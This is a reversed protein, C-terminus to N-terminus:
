KTPLLPFSEAGPRGTMQRLDDETGFADNGAPLRGYRLPTQDDLHHSVDALGPNRTADLVASFSTGGGFGNGRLAVLGLVVAVFCMGLGSGYAAFLTASHYEFVTTSTSYTCQTETTTSTNLNQAVLSLTVNQMLQEVGSPLDSVWTLGSSNYTVVLNTLMVDLTLPDIRNFSEQQRYFAGTLHNYLANKIAEYNSAEIQDPDLQNMSTPASTSFPYGNNYTIDAVRTEAETVGFAFDITYTANYMNCAFSPLTDQDWLTANGWEVAFNGSVNQTSEWVPGIPLANWYVSLGSQLFTTNAPVSENCRLAPANVSITYSCNAGCPSIPTYPQGIFLTYGVTRSAAAELYFDFGASGVLKVAHTTTLPLIALVHCVM